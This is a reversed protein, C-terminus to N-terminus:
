IGLWEATDLGNQGSRIEFTFASRKGDFALSGLSQGGSLEEGVEVSIAGLHASVTYFGSGHDLIVTKGLDPYEDAFAVRGPFVARVNAGPAAGLSVASAPGKSGRVRQIETRGAIPFPLRGRQRSFDGSPAANGASRAGYVMAPTPAPVAAHAELEPEWKNDQFAQRFAVDREEAALIANRARQMALKDSPRVAQREEIGRAVEVRESAIQRQRDLDRQLARRLRELRSAHAAMADLGDSLPLLGARVMRVYARGRAVTLAQREAAEQRLWAQRRQLEELDQDVDAPLYGPEDPNAAPWERAPAAIASGGLLAILIPWRRLRM